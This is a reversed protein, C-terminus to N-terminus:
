VQSFYHRYFQLLSERPGLVKGAIFVDNPARDRHNPCPQQGARRLNGEVLCWGIGESLSALNDPLWGRAEIIWSKDPGTVIEVWYAEFDDSDVTGLAYTDPVERVLPDTARLFYWIYEAMEKCRNVGPPRGDSHEINNRVEILARLVM